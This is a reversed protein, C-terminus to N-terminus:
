FWWTIKLFQLWRSNISVCGWCIKRGNGDLMSYYASSRYFPLCYNIESKSSIPLFSSSFEASWCCIRDIRIDSYLKLLNNSCCINWKNYILFGSQRNQSISIVIQAFLLANQGIHFCTGKANEINNSISPAIWLSYKIAFSNCPRCLFPRQDHASFCFHM